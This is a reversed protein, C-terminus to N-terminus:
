NPWNQPKEGQMHSMSCQSRWALNWGMLAPALCPDGVAFKVFNQFIFAGCPCIWNDVAHNKHFKWLRHATEQCILMPWILEFPEFIMHNQPANYGFKWGSQKAQLLIACSIRLLKHFTCFNYPSNSHQTHFARIEHLEMSNKNKYGDCKRITYDTSVVEDDLCKVVSVSKNDYPLPLNM